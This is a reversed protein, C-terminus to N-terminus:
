EYLEGCNPVYKRVWHLTRHIAHRPGSPGPNVFSRHKQVSIGNGSFMMGSNVPLLLYDLKTLGSGCGYGTGAVAWLSFPADKDSSVLYGKETLIAAVRARGEQNNLDNMASFPGGRTSLNMRCDVEAHATAMGFYVLVLILKKM